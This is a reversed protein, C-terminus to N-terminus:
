VFPVSVGSIERERLEYEAQDIMIVLCGEINEKELMTLKSELIPHLIELTQPVIKLRIVGPHTGLAVDRVDAFDSNFTIVIQKEQRAKTLVELDSAGSLSLEKVDVVDHALNRLFSTTNPSLNEDLLLRM